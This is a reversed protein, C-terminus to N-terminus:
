DDFRAIARIDVSVRPPADPPASPDVFGTHPVRWARRGDSDYAKIVLLEDRHMDRFYHWEHRPSSRFSSGEFIIQRGPLGIVVDTLIVDEPAVSRADCLAIPEDQPPPSFARWLSYIAFRGALWRKSDDLGLTSQVTAPGSRRTYDSHVHTAPYTTGPAGFDPARRALRVVASATVFVRSAGTIALLARELEPRYVRDVEEPDRVNTLETRHPVLCFGSEDLTFERQRPRADRIHVTVREVANCDRAPDSLHFRPRESMPALYEVTADVVPPRSDAAPAHMPDSM